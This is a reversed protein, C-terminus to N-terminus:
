ALLIRLHRHPFAKVDPKYVEIRLGTKKLQVVNRHCLVTLPGRRPTRLFDPDPSTLHKSVMIDCGARYQGSQAGVVGERNQKKSSVHSSGLPDGMRDQSHEREFESLKPTRISDSALSNGFLRTIYPVNGERRQDIHSTVIWGRLPGVDEDACECWVAWLLYYRTIALRSQSTVSTSSTTALLRKRKM